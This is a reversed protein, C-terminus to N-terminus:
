SGAWPPQTGTGSVRGMTSAPGAEGHLVGHRGSVSGVRDGLLTMEYAVLGMDCESEALVALVSGGSVSMLMLVGHEMVVVMQAVPGGDFIRAVGQALGTLGSTLAALQDARDRPLSHSVALPLGDASAVAVHVVSPVRETFATVQWALDQAM